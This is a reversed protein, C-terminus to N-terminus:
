TNVKIFKKSTKNEPDLFYWAKVNKKNPKKCSFNRFFIVNGKSNIIIKSTYQYSNKNKM